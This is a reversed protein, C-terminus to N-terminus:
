SVSNAASSRPPSDDSGFRVVKSSTLQEQVVTSGDFMNHFRGFSEMEGYKKCIYSSYVAVVSPRSAVQARKVVNV